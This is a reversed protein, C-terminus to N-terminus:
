LIQKYAYVPPFLSERQFRWSKQDLEVWMWSSGVVFTAIDDMWIRVIREFTVNSFTKLNKM